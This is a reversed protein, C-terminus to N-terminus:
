IWGDVSYCVCSVHKPVTLTENHILIVEQGHMVIKTVYWTEKDSRIVLLIFNFNEALKLPNM